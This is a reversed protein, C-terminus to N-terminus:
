HCNCLKKKLYESLKIPADGYKEKHKKLCENCYCGKEKKGENKCIDCENCINENDM